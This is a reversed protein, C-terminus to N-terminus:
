LMSNVGTLLIEAVPPKMMRSVSNMSDEVVAHVRLPTTVLQRISVVLLVTDMFIVCYILAADVTETNSVSITLGVLATLMFIETVVYLLAVSPRDEVMLLPFEDTLM